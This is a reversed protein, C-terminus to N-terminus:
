ACAENEYALTVAILLKEKINKLMHITIGQNKRMEEKFALAM